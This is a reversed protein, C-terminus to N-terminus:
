KFMRAAKIFKPELMTTKSCRLKQPNFPIGGKQVFCEPAINWHQNYPAFDQDTIKNLEKIFTALDGQAALWEIPDTGNMGNLKSKFQAFTTGKPIALIKILYNMVDLIRDDKVNKLNFAWIKPIKTKIKPMPIDHIPIEHIPCESNREMSFQHNKCYEVHAELLKEVVHFYEKELGGKRANSAKCRFFRLQGIAYNLSVNGPQNLLQRKLNEYSGTFINDLLDMLDELVFISPRRLPQEMTTRFFAMYMRDCTFSDPAMKSIMDLFHKKMRNIDVKPEFMLQSIRSFEGVFFKIMGSLEFAKRLKCTQNDIDIDLLCQDIFYYKTNEINLLLQYYKPDQLVNLEKRLEEVEMKVFAKYDKLKMFEWPHKEKFDAIRMQIRLGGKECTQYFLREYDFDPPKNLDLKGELVHTLWTKYKRLSLCGVPMGSLKGSEIKGLAQALMPPSFAYPFSKGQSFQCFLLHFEAKDDPLSGPLLGKLGSLKVFFQDPIMQHCDAWVEDLLQIESKVFGMWLPSGSVNNVFQNRIVGFEMLVCEMKKQGQFRKMQFYDKKSTNIPKQDLDYFAPDWVGSYFAEPSFCELRANTDWFQEIVWNIKDKLVISGMLEGDENVDFLTLRFFFVNFLRSKCDVFNLYKKRKCNSAEVRLLQYQNWFTLLLEKLTMAELGLSVNYLAIHCNSVKHDLEYSHDFLSQPDDNVDNMVKANILNAIKTKVFREETCVNCHM